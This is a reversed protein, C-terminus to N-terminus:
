GDSNEGILAHRLLFAMALMSLGLLILFVSLFVTKRRGREFVTGVQDGRPADSGTCTPKEM